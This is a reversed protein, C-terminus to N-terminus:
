AQGFKDFVKHKGQTQVTFLAKFPVPHFHRKATPLILIVHLKGNQDYSCECSQPARIFIVELGKVAEWTSQLWQTASTANHGMRCGDHVSVWGGEAQGCQKVIGNDLNNLTLRLLSAELFAQPKTPAWAFTKRPKCM